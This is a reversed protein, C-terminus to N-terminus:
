KTTTKLLKSDDFWKIGCTIPQTKPQYILSNGIEIVENDKTIIAFIYSQKM